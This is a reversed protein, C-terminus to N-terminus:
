EGAGRAQRGSRHFLYLFFPGGCLATVVGVPMEVPALVTRAATDAVVLFVAGALAATPLLMRHDPGIAARVGHPVMLGVFGILGSTSVAAATALSAALITFTRIREPDVGLSRAEEDGLALLNLRGSSLILLTVAVTVLLATAALTGYSVPELTGVLWFFVRQFRTYDVVTIVFLILASFFANIVAGTLLLATRSVGGSRRALAFLLALTAGAGGFSLVPRLLEAAVSGEGSGALASLIAGLAAGGSVGLIYPDALPNRLVAQFGAGATSLAAGVLAALLVRPLRLGLLIERARQAEEGSLSGALFSWPRVPAAGVSLGFAIAAALAVLLALCLGALRAPRFGHTDGARM